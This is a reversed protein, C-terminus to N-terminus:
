IEICIMMDGISLNFKEDEKWDPHRKKKICKIVSALVKLTLYFHNYCDVEYKSIKPLFIWDKVM